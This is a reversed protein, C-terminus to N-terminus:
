QWEIVIAEKGAMRVLHDAVVDQLTTLQDADSSELEVALGDGCTLRCTGLPLEIKGQQEDISVPFKHSWHKCLRKMLRAPDTTQVHGNATLM